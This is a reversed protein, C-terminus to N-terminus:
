ALLMRHIFSRLLRRFEPNEYQGREGREHDREVGQHHRRRQARDSPLTAEAAVKSAPKAGAIATEAARDSAPATM